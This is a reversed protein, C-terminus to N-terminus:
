LLCRMVSAQCSNLTELSQMVSAAKVVYSIEEELLQLVGVLDKGQATVHGLHEVRAAALTV